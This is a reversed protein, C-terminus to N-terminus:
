THENTRPCATTFARSGPCREKQFCCTREESCTMWRRDLAWRKRECVRFNTAFQRFCLMKNHFSFTNSKTCEWVSFLPPPYDTLAEQPAVAHLRQALDQNYSLLCFLLLVLASAGTVWFDPTPPKPLQSGWLLRTLRVPILAARHGTWTTCAAKM